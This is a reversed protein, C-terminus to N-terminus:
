FLYLFKFTAGSINFTTEMFDFPYNVGHGYSRYEYFPEFTFALSHCDICYFYTWPLEIRYQPRQDYKQDISSHEPDHSVKQKGNWLIRVKFNLGLSCQPTIFIQSLFGVPVYSFTNEFHVKFDDPKHYHNKEWFYGIGVFPTFSACRWNKCQFTYGVRGEINTDTLKSELHVDDVSGKLNGQAWLLDAGLYFKYRAIRDAGVRLGYMMGNQTAGGEKTRHVYYIEPGLYPSISYSKTWDVTESAHIFSIFTLLFLSITKSLKNYIHM